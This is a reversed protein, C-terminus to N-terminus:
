YQEFRHFSHRIWTSACTLQHFYSIDLRRVPGGLMRGDPKLSRPPPHDSNGKPARTGFRGLDPDIERLKVSRVLSGCPTAARGWRSRPNSGPADCKRQVRDRRTRGVGGPVRVFKAPRSWRRGIQRHWHVPM